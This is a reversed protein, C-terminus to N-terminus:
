DVFKIMSFSDKDNRLCVAHTARREGATIHVNGCRECVTRGCVNCSGLRRVDASGCVPCMLMAGSRDTM